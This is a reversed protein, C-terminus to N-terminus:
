NSSISVRDFDSTMFNDGGIIIQIEHQEVSTVSPLDWVATATRQVFDITEIPVSCDGITAVCDLSAPDTAFEDWEIDYSLTQGGVLDHEKGLVRLSAETDYVYLNQLFEGAIVSNNHLGQPAIAASSEINVGYESVLKINALDSIDFKFIYRPRLTSGNDRSGAVFLYKDNAVARGGLEMDGESPLLDVLLESSFQGNTYERVLLSKSNVVTFFANNGYAMVGINTSISDTLNDSGITTDGLSVLSGNIPAPPHGYFVLSDGVFFLRTSVWSTVPFSGSEGSLTDYVFVGSSEHGASFLRGDKVITSDPHNNYTISGFSTIRGADLEFSQGALGVVEIFDEIGAEGSRWAAYLKGDKLDVSDLAGNVSQRNYVHAVRPNSADRVDVLLARKNSLDPLLAIGEDVVKVKLSLESIGPWSVRGKFAPVASGLKVSSTLIDTSPGQYNEVSLPLTAFVELSARGVVQLECHESFTGPEISIHNAAFPQRSTIGNCGSLNFIQTAADLNDVLVETPSDGVFMKIETLPLESDDRFSLSLPTVTLPHNLTILAGDALTLEVVIDCVFPDSGFNPPTITVSGSTDGTVNELIALTGGSGDPCTSQSWDYNTIVPADPLPAIVFGKSVGGEMLEHPRVEVIPVMGGDTITWGKDELQKRAAAAAITYQSDGANFKNNPQVNQAAWAILMADYNQTPLQVGSFMNAMGDPSGAGDIYNVSEINWSSLDQDFSLAGQFMSRMNTAASTIWTSINGNFKEALNFMYGFNRVNSVNWSESNLDQNFAKAVAFMRNMNTVNSVDWHSIDDNFREAYFFMSSMDTVSSLDPSDKADIKELHICIHCFGHMSQWAIDGWRHVTLLKIGEDGRPSSSQAQNLHPFEGVIKVTQVGRSGYTHRADGSLAESEGDGWDILYNYDLDPNTGILLENDLTVANYDWSSDASPSVLTTDWVTVFPLVIKMISLHDTPDARLITEGNVQLDLTVNRADDGRTSRDFGSLAEEGVRMKGTVIAGGSSVEVDEFTINTNRTGDPNIAVWEFATNADAGTVSASVDFAFSADFIQEPAATINATISPPTVVANLTQYAPAFDKDGMKIVTLTVNGESVWTVDGTVPDVLAISPNSSLYVYEGTGRGGNAAFSFTEGIVIEGPATPVTLATQQDRSDVEAVVWDHNATYYFESGAAVILEFQDTGEAGDQSPMQWIIDATKDVLDINTVTCTGGSVFCKVGDVIAEDLSWSASYKVVDGYFVTHREGSLQVRDSLNIKHVYNNYSTIILEDKDLTIDQGNSNFIEVRKSQYPNVPDNTALGRLVTHNPGLPGAFQNLGFLEHGVLLSTESDNLGSILTQTEDFTSFTGVFRQEGTLKEVVFKSEEGTFFWFHQGTNGLIDVGGVQKELYSDALDHGLLGVFYKDDFVRAYALRDGNDSLYTIKGEVPYNASSSIGEGNFTLTTIGSDAGDFAIYLQGGFLHSDTLTLGPFDIRELTKADLGDALTQSTDFVLVAGGDFGSGGNLLVYLRQEVLFLDIIDSSALDPHVDEAGWFRRNVNTGYIQSGVNFFVEANKYAGETVDGHTTDFHKVRDNLDIVSIGSAFPKDVLPARAGAYTLSKVTYTASSDQFAEGGKKVVTIVAEGSTLGITVVGTLPDVAAVFEDSSSYSVDGNGLGGIVPLSFVDDGVFAEYVYSGDGPIENGENDVFNLPDQEPLAEVTLRIEDFVGSVNLRVTVEAGEPISPITLDTDRQLHSSFVFLDAYEPEIIEWYIDGQRLMTDSDSAEIAVLNVVGSANVTLNDVETEVGSILAGAVAVAPDNDASIDISIEANVPAGEGDLATLKIDCTYDQYVFAIPAFTLTNSDSFVSFDTVAPNTFPQGSPATYSCTSEGWNYETIANTGQTVAQATIVIESQEEIADYAPDAPLPSTVVLAFEWPSYSAEITVPVDISDTKGAADTVTLTITAAGAAPMGSVDFIGVSQDDTTFTIESNASSWLYSAIGTDDTSTSRIEAGVTNDLIPTTDVIASAVPNEMDSPAVVIVIDDASTNGAVDTVTLRLVIDAGNPASPVTLGRRVGVPTDYFVVNTNDANEISWVYSVIGDDADISLGGDVSITQGSVANIQEAAVVQFSSDLYGAVGQPVDNDAAITLILDKSVSLEGDSVAVTFLLDRDETFNPTIFTLSEASWDDPNLGLEGEAWATVNEYEGLDITTGGQTGALSWRYSLQANPTASDSSDAASLTVQVEGEDAERQAPHNTENATFRGFEDNAGAVEVDNVSIIAIPAQNTPAVTIAIEAPTADCREPDNEADCVTLSFNLTTQTPQQPVAFFAQGDTEGRSLWNVQVADAPDQSWQYYLADGEEDTSTSGDLREDTIDEPDHGSITLTRDTIVAVPIDDIATVNISLAPVTITSDTADTVTLQIDCTYDAKQQGPTVFTLTSATATSFDALVPQGLCTSESWDYATIAATGMTTVNAAITATAGESVPANLSLALVPAIYGSTVTVTKSATTEKLFDESGQEAVTVEFTFSQDDNSTPAEFSCTNSTNGEDCSVATPDNAALASGTEDLQQWSYSLARISEPDSAVAQFTITDGGNVATPANLTLEPAANEAKIAFSYDVATSTAGQEDKVQLTVMLDAVPAELDDIAFSFQDLGQGSASAVGLAALATNPTWTYTLDNAATFLDIETNGAQPIAQLTVGTNEAIDTASAPMVLSIDAKPTDNNAAVMVDINASSVANEAATRNAEGGDIVTLTFTIFTEEAASAPTFTPALETTSSLLQLAESDNSTWSYSLSAPATDLDRVTIGSLAIPMGANANIALAPAIVTPADDGANITVALKVASTGDIEGDSVTLTFDCNQAVLTNSATFSAVEATADTLQGACTTTWNYTTILNTGDVSGAATLSAAVDEELTTGGGVLAASATPAIYGRQVNILATVAASTEGGTVDETAAVTFDFAQSDVMIAPAIFTLTNGSNGAPILNEYGAPATWTYTYAIAAQDQDENTVEATLTVETNAAVNVPNPQVSVEPKANIADVTVTYTEPESPEGQEDTVVLEFQLSIQEALNPTNFSLTSQTFDTIGLDYATTTILRWQYTLSASDTFDDNSAEGSLVVPSAEPVLDGAVPTIVAVPATNNGGLQVVVNQTQLNDANGDDLTVTFTFSTATAVNPATFTAQATDANTLAIGADEASWTFNLAQGEPDTGSATLIVEAGATATIPTPAVLTPAEDTATITVALTDTSSDTAPTAADAVTLIFNCSYDDLRNAPTFTAIATNENAIAGDTCDTTWNYSAIAQSGPISMAATLDFATSETTAVAPAALGAVATPAFYGVGVVVHAPVSAIPLSGVGVQTVQLGFELTTEDMLDAPATFTTTASNPNDLLGAYGVPESWTYTYTLDQHEFDPDNVTAALTVIAGPAAAGVPPITVVAPDNEATIDLDFFVKASSLAPTSDDTVVLSLQVTQNAALNPAIVTIDQATWDTIGLDFAVDSELVWQYSLNAASTYDDTSTSGSLVLSSNEAVSTADNAATIRAVPAKNGGQAIVTVPQTTQNVGDSVTLEFVLTLSENATEPTPATFTAIENNFSFDDVAVPNLASPMWSYTLPQSEPDSHQFPVLEVAANSAVTRQTPVFTVIPAENVAAVTVDVTDSSSEGGQTITLEFTFVQEALYNGATFTLIPTNAGTLVPQGMGLYRWSYSVSASANLAQGVLQVEDGEQISVDDGANAMLVPVEIINGDSSSSGAESSSSNTESSTSESSSSESVSSSSSPASSSDGVSSSIASPPDMADTPDTAQDLEDANSIGDSDDDFRSLDYDNDAIELRTRQGATITVPQTTEALVLEGYRPDNYVFQVTISHAGEPIDEMRGTASGGSITLPQWDGNNLRVRASLYEPEVKNSVKQPVAFTSQQGDPEVEWEQKESKNFCGGLFSSCILAVVLTRASFTM